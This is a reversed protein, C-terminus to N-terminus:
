QVIKGIRGLRWRFPGNSSFYVFMPKGRILHRPIPGFQRSDKSHDPNDGTVFYADRPVVVPDFSGSDSRTGSFAPGPATNGNVMLRGGAMQVTDGPMGTIRKIFNSKGDEPSKFIVVDGAAPNHDTFYLQNSLVHDGPELTPTMSGTPIRFAKLIHEGVASSLSAQVTLCVALVGAYLLPTNYKRPSFDAGARLAGRMAEVAVALQAALGLLFLGTLAAASGATVSLKLTRILVAFVVGGWITFLFNFLLGKAAQGNYVQGLGPVLYSLLGAVWWRRTSGARKKEM